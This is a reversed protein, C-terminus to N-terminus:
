FWEVNQTVEQAGSWARIVVDPILHRPDIHELQGTDSRQIVYQTDTITAEYVGDIIVDYGAATESSWTIEMTVIVKPCPHRQTPVWTQVATHTGVVDSLVLTPVALEPPSPEEVLLEPEVGPEEEEEVPADPEHVPDFPTEEEREPPRESPVEVEPTEVATPEDEVGETDTEPLGGGTDEPVPEEEVEMPPLANPVEPVPSIEEGPEQEIVESEITTEPVSVGHLNLEVLPQDEAACAALFLLPILKKIM